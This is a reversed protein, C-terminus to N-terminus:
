APTISLITIQKNRPVTCQTYLKEKAEGESGYQLGMIRMSYSNDVKFKVEYQMVNNNLHGNMENSCLVM